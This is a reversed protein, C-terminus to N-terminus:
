VPVSPANKLIGTFTDSTFQSGQDTNFIEPTAVELANQLAKICFYKDLGSNLRIYTIDTSWVQDIRGIFVGRLLYPYIKHKKSAKSLNPKPYIAELGM